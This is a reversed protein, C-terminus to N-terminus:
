IYRDALYFFEKSFYNSRGSNDTFQDFKAVVLLGQRVHAQLSTKMFGFDYAANFANAVRSDTDAAFVDAEVPGWDCPSPDCAGFAHVVIRGGKVQLVFRTIGSTADNTNVWMGALPTPDIEIGPQTQNHLDRKIRKSTASEM